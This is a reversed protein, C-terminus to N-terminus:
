RRGMSQAKAGMKAQEMAKEEEENKIELFAAWGVLEEQTLTETL